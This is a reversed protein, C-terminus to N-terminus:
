IVLERIICAIVFRIQNFTISPEADKIDRLRSSKEVEAKIKAFISPSVDLSRALDEHALDMGAGLCDIAYVEATAASKAIREFSMGRKFMGM